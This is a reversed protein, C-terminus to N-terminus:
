HLPPATHPSWGDHPTFRLIDTNTAVILVDIDHPLRLVAAPVKGPTEQMTHILGSAPGDPSAMLILVHVGARGALSQRVNTARDSDLWDQLFATVDYDLNATRSQESITGSLLIGPELPTDPLVAFHCYFGLSTAYKEFNDHDAFSDTFGRSELDEIMKTLSAILTKVAPTMPNGDYTDAAASVDVSVAWLHRFSLNPIHRELLADYAATFKRLPRSTLEKVEVVHRGSIFDPIPGNTFSSEQECIRTLDPDDLVVTAAM